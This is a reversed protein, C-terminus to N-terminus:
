TFWATFWAPSLSVLSGGAEALQTILPVHWLAWSIRKKKKKFQYLILVVVAIYL